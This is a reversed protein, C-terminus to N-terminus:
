YFIITFWFNLLNINTVVLCSIVVHFLCIHINFLTPRLRCDPLLYYFLLYSSQLCFCLSQSVEERSQQLSSELVEAKERWTRLDGQVEVLQRQLEEVKEEGRSQFRGACSVRKEVGKTGAHVHREYYRFACSVRM